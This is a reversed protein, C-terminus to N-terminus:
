YWNSAHSKGFNPKCKITIRKEGGGRGRKRKREKERERRGGDKKEGEEKEREEEGGERWTFPLKVRPSFM